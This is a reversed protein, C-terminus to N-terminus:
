NSRVGGGLDKRSIGSLGAFSAGPSLGMMLQQQDLVPALAEDQIPIELSEIWDRAQTVSRALCDSITTEGIRYHLSEARFRAGECDPCTVYARYRGIFVRVHMKYNKREIWKFWGRFGVWGAGSWTAGEDGELLRSQTFLDMHEWPVDM